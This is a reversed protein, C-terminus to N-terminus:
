GECVRDGECSTAAASHSREQAEAPYVTDPTSPPAACGASWHGALMLEAAGAITVGRQQRTRRGTRTTRACLPGIIILQHLIENIKFGDASIHIDM